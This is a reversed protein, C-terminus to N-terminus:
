SQVTAKVFIKTSDAKRNEERNIRFQTLFFFFGEYVSLKISKEYLKSGKVYMYSM